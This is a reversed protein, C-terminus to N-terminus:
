LTVTAQVQLEFTRTDQQISLQSLQWGQQQLTNLAASVTEQSPHTFSLQVTEAAAVVQPNNIGATNLLTSIAQAPPINASDVPTSHRANANINGAQGRLWFYDAVQEQYDAKREQATHHVSYGGYGGIVLLLFVLLVSLALQDRPSLARWFAQWRTRMGNQYHNVRASLGSSAVTHRKNRRSLINM